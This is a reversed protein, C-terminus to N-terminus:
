MEVVRVAHERHRREAADELESADGDEEREHIAEGAEDRPDRPAAALGGRAAELRREVVRAARDSELGALAGNELDGAAGDVRDAPAKGPLRDRVLWGGGVQPPGDLEELRERELRGVGARDPRPQDPEDMPEVMELPQM